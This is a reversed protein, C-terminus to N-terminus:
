GLIITPLASLRFVHPAGHIKTLYLLSTLLVLHISHINLLQSSTLSSVSCAPAAPNLRPAVLLLFFLLHPAAGGASLVAVLVDHGHETDTHFTNVLNTPPFSEHLGVKLRKASSVVLAQAAGCGVADAVGPPSSWLRLLVVVLLM